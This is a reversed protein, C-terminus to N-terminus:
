FSFRHKAIKTVNGVYYKDLVM